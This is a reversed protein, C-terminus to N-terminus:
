LPRYHMQFMNEGRWKKRWEYSCRRLWKKLINKDMGKMVSSNLLLSLAAPQNILGWNERLVSRKNGSFRCRKWKGPLLVAGASPAARSRSAQAWCLGALPRHQQPASTWKYISMKDHTWFKVNWVWLEYIYLYLFFRKRPKKRLSVFRVVTAAHVTWGSCDAHDIPDMFVSQLLSKRKKEQFPDDTLFWM